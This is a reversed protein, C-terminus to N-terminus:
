LSSSSFKYGVESDLKNKTGQNKGGPRSCVRKKKLILVENVTLLKEIM